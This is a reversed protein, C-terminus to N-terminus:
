SQLGKKMENLRAVGVKFYYHLYHTCTWNSVWPLNWKNQVGTKPHLYGDQLFYSKLPQVVALKSFKIQLHQEHFPALLKNRMLQKFYNLNHPVM